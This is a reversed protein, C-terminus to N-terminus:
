TIAAVLQDQEVCPEHRRAQTDRQRVEVPGLIEHHRVLARECLLHNSLRQSDDLRWEVFRREVVPCAIRRARLGLDVVEDLLAGADDRDLHLRARRARQSGQM